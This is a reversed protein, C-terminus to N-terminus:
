AQVAALVWRQQVMELRFALARVRGNITYTICCEAVQENVLCVHPKSLRFLKYINGYRKIWAQHYGWLSDAASSTLWRDFRRFRRIGSMSELVMRAMATAWQNITPAQGEPKPPPPAVLPALSREKESQASTNALDEITPGLPLGLPNKNDVATKM